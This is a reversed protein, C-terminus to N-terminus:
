VSGTGKDAQYSRQCLAALCGIRKAQAPLNAGWGNYSQMALILYRVARSTRNGVHPCLCVCVWMAMM